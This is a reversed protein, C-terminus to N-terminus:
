IRKRIGEVGSSGIYHMAGISDLLLYYQLCLSFLAHFLSKRIVQHPPGEPDGNSAGGCSYHINQDSNYNGSNKTHDDSNPSGLSESYSIGTGPISGGITKRGDSNVSIHGARGGVSVGVSKKGVNVRVGPAVKFSKRFRIGMECKNQWECFEEENFFHM